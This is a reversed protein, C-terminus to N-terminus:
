VFIIEDENNTESPCIVDLLNGFTNLVLLVGGLFVNLVTHIYSIIYLYKIHEKDSITELMMIGWIGLPIAFIAHITHKVKNLKILSIIKHRSLLITNILVFTWTELQDHKKADDYENILSLLTFTIFAGIGGFLITAYLYLYIMSHTFNHQNQNNNM